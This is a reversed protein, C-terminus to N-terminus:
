QALEDVVVVVVFSITNVIVGTKLSTMAENTLREFTVVSDTKAGIIIKQKGRPGSTLSACRRIRDIILSLHVVLNPSLPRRLM